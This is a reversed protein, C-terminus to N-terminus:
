LKMLHRMQRFLVGQPATRLVGKCYYLDSTVPLLVINGGAFCFHLSVIDGCEGVRDSM